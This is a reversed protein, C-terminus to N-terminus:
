LRWPSACPWSRTRWPRRYGAPRPVHGVRGLGFPRRVEKRYCALLEYLWSRSEGHATAVETVKQGEVVVANIVYEALDIRACGKM